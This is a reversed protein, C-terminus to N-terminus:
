GSGRRVQTIGHPAMEGVDHVGQLHLGHRICKVKGYVSATALVYYVCLCSFSQTSPHLM